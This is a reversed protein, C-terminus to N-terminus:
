RRKTLVTGHDGVAWLTQDRDIVIAHLNHTTGSEEATWSTGDFHLLTGANGVAWLEGEFGVVDDLSYAGGSMATSWANGNWHIVSGLSGVAWVDDASAAWVARLSASDIGTDVAQWTSGNWHLATANDGVAWADDEALTWVDRLTANRPTDVQTWTGAARTLALGDNGVIWASDNTGHISRLWTDGAAAPMDDSWTAGSLHVVSGATGVAWLENDRGWLGYIARQTPPMDLSWGSPRHAILEDGGIWVTNADDVFATLRAARSGASLTQRAGGIWRQMVGSEGVALLDDEGISAVAYLASSLNSAVPSWRGGAYSWVKGDDGFAWALALASMGADSAGADGVGADNPVSAWPRVAGVARAVGVLGASVDSWENGNWHIAGRNGVAWVDDAALGILAFLSAGIPNNGETWAEGDFHLLAGSGGVAWVDDTASGWVARLSLTVGSPVVTFADGDYHFLRGNDGALWIDDPAAGWIAHLTRVPLPPAADSDPATSVTSWTDGDFHVVVGQDGAAWVDDRAFGFVANLTTEVSSEARSWGIGDYHLILGNDGVAWVDDAASAWVARMTHGQPYPLEWCWGDASCVDRTEPPIAADTHGADMDDGSDLDTSADDSADSGADTRPAGKVDGGCAATLTMLFGLAGAVKSSASNVTSVGTQKQVHGDREADILRARM